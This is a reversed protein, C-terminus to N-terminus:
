PDPATIGLDDQLLVGDSGKQSKRHQMSSKQNDPPRASVVASDTDNNHSNSAHKNKSRANGVRKRRNVFFMGTCHHGPLSLAAPAIDAPRFMEPMASLARASSANTAHASCSPEQRPHKTAPHRIRLYLWTLMLMANSSPPGARTLLKM